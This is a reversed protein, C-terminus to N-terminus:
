ISALPLMPAMVDTYMGPSRTEGGAAVVSNLKSTLRLAAEAM